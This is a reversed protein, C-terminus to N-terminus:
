TIQHFLSVARHLILRFFYAEAAEPITPIDIILNVQRAAWDAAKGELEDAIFARAEDRTAVSEARREKVAPIEVRLVRRKIRTDSLDLLPLPKVKELGEIQPTSPDDLM